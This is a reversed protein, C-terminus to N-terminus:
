PDLIRQIGDQLPQFNVTVDGAFPNYLGLVVGVGMASVLAWGVLMFPRTVKTAVIGMVMSSLTGATLLLWLVSAPLQRRAISLLEVQGEAISSAVTLVQGAEPDSSDANKELARVGRELRDLYPLSPLDNLEGVALKPGDEESVVRMYDKLDRAVVDARSRDEVNEILWAVEQASAAVKEVSTQASSITGWTITVSFGILFAMAVGTPANMAEALTILETQRSPAVRRRVLLRTAFTVVSFYVTFLAVVALTPLQALADFV